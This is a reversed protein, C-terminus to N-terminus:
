NSRVADHAKVAANSDARQAKVISVPSDAASAYSGAICGATLVIIPLTIKM